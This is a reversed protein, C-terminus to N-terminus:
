IEKQEKIISNSLLVNFGYWLLIVMLLFSAEIISWIYIIGIPIILWFVIVYIWFVYDLYVFLKKWKLYSIGLTFVIIIIGVVVRNAQSQNLYVLIDDM